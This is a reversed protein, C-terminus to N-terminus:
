PRPNPLTKVPAQPCLDAYWWDVSHPLKSPPPITTSLKVRVRTLAVLFHVHLSELDTTLDDLSQETRAQEVCVVDRELQSLCELLLSRDYLLPFGEMLHTTARLQARAEYLCALKLCLEGHLLPDIRWLELTALVEVLQALFM